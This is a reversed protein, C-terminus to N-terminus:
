NLDSVKYTEHDRLLPIRNSCFSGAIIRVHVDSKFMIAFSCNKAELRKYSFNTSRFESTKKTSNVEITIRSIGWMRM